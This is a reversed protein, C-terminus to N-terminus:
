NKNKLINMIDNVTKNKGTAYKNMYISNNVKNNILEPKDIKIINLTNIKIKSDIITINTESLYKTNVLNLDKPYNDNLVQIKNNKIVNLRRLGDIVKFDSKINDIIIEIGIKKTGEFLSKIFYIYLKGDINIEM